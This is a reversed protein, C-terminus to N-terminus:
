EKNSGKVLESIKGFYESLLSKKQFFLFMKLYIM